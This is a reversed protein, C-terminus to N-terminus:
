RSGVGRDGDREARQERALLRRLAEDAPRGQYLIAYMEETIPMEVGERRALDRASRTTVVGEAVEGLEALIDELSRGQGLALGVRRNRSLDGTTTLVLDGMGALGMMTLPDGGCAVALRTIEALGRTILAARANTGLGLGDSIGCAIAMVNKLSGGLCVGVTDRTHYTRLAGGHFARAVEEAAPSPGAIAVATPHARVLELAFSPGSLVTILSHYREPLVEAAVQTSWRLTGEEVGKTAVCILVEPRLYPAASALVQRLAHSPVVPVLLEAGRVAAALESEARLAVPLPEGRLYRPNRHHQNLHACRDVHRDWLVVEHGQRSLQAALATGWSGGGLVTVRTSM